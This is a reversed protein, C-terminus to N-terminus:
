QLLPQREVAIGRRKKRRRVALEAARYLRYIRKQNAPFGERRLLAHLRRYGFRRRQWALAKLRQQLQADDVQKHSEYLLVARSIGVLRCARRQSVSPKQLM